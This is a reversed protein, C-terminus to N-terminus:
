SSKGNYVIWPPPKGMKSFGWLNKKWNRGVESNVFFPTNQRLRFMMPEESAERFIQRGWLLISINVEIYTLREYWGWPWIINMNRNFMYDRYIYIYVYMCVYIYIHIYVYMCVKTQGTSPIWPNKLWDQWGSLMGASQDQSESWQFQGNAGWTVRTVQPGSAKMVAMTWRSAPDPFMILHQSFHWCFYSGVLFSHDIVSFLVKM